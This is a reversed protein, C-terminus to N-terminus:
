SFSLTFQCCCQHKASTAKPGTLQFSSSNGQLHRAPEELSLAKGVHEKSNTQLPKTLHSVRAQKCHLLVTQGAQSQPGRQSSSLGDETTSKGPDQASSSNSLCLYWLTNIPQDSSPAPLLTPIIKANDSWSVRNIDSAM